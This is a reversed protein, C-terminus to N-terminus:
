SDSRVGEVEFSGAMQKRTTYKGLELSLVLYCVCSLSLLLLKMLVFGDRYSWFSYSYPYLVHCPFISCKVSPSALSPLRRARGTSVLSGRSSSRIPANRQGRTPCGKRGEEAEPGCTVRTQFVGSGVRTVRRGKALHRGRGRSLGLRTPSVPCHCAIRSFPTRLPLM